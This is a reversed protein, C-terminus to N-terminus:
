DFEYFDEEPMPAATGDPYKYCGDLAVSRGLVKAQIFRHGVGRIGGSPLPQVIIGITAPRSEVILHEIPTEGLRTLEEFSLQRLPAGRGNV